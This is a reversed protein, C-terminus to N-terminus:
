KLTKQIKKVYQTDLNTYYKRGNYLNLIYEKKIPKNNTELRDILLILYSVFIKTQLNVDSILGNLYYNYDTSMKKLKYIDTKTLINNFLNQKIQYVRYVEKVTIYQIQFYGISFEGNSDIIKLNKGSSEVILIVLLDTLEFVKQLSPSSYYFDVLNSVIIDKNKSKNLDPVLEEIIRYMLLRDSRKSNIISNSLTKQTTTERNSQNNSNSVTSTYFQPPTNNYGGNTTFTPPHFLQSTEDVNKLQGDIISGQKVLLPRKFLSNVVLLILLLSILIGIILIIIFILKITNLKRHKKPIRRITM